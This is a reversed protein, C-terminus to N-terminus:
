SLAILNTATTGTSKIRSLRIPLITGALINTFTVAAGSVMVVAVNGAGGVYLGRSVYTLDTADSPTVAEANGAPQDLAGGTRHGFQDLAAM